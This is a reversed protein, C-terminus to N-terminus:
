AANVLKLIPAMIHKKIWIRQDPFYKAASLQITLFAVTKELLTGELTM